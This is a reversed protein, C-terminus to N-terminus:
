HRLRLCPPPVNFESEFGVVDLVADTGKARETMPALEPGGREEDEDEQKASM